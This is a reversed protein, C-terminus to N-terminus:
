EPNLGEEHAAEAAVGFPNGLLNYTTCLKESKVTTDRVMHGGRGDGYYSWIVRRVGCGALTAMMSRVQDASIPGEATM